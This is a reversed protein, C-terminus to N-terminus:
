IFFHFKKDNAIPADIISVNSIFILNSYNFLKMSVFFYNGRSIKKNTDTNSLQLLLQKSLLKTLLFTM